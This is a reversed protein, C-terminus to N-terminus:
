PTAYMVVAEGSRVPAGILASELRGIRLLLPLSLRETSQPGPGAEGGPILKHVRRERQGM